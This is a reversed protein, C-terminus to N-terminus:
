NTIKIESLILFVMVVTVCMPQGRLAVRLGFGALSHAQGLGSFSIKLFAGHAILSFFLFHYPSVFVSKKVPQCQPCFFFFCSARVAHILFLPALSLDFTQAKLLTKHWVSFSTSKLGSSRM